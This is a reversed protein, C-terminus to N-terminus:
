EDDPIEMEMVVGESDSMTIKGDMAKMESVMNGDEDYATWMFTEENENSWLYEVKVIGNEDATDTEYVAQCMEIGNIVEKGVIEMSVVEGTNPNTTTWVSGVPCNEDDTGETYTVEYEQGDEDEITVTSTEKDSCGSVALSLVLLVLFVIMKKQM